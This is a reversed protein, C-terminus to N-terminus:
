FKHFQSFYKKRRAPASPPVAAAGALGRGRLGPRTIRASQDGRAVLSQAVQQEEVAGAALARVRPRQRAPRDEGLYM